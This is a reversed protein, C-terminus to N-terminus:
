LRQLHFIKKVKLCHSGDDELNRVRLERDACHAHGPASTQEAPLPLAFEVNSSIAPIRCVGRLHLVCLESQTGM